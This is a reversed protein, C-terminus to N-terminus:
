GCLQTAKRLTFTWGETLVEGKARKLRKPIGQIYTYEQVNIYTKCIYMCIQMYTHPKKLDVYVNVYM